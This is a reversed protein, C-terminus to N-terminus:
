EEKAVCNSVYMLESMVDRGEFFKRESLFESNSVKPFLSQSSVSLLIYVLENGALGGHNLFLDFTVFLYLKGIEVTNLFFYMKM